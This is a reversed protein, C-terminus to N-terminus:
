LTCGASSEVAFARTLFGPPAIQRLSLIPMEDDRVEQRERWDRADRQQEGEGTAKWGLEASLVSYEASRTHGPGASLAALPSSLWSGPEAPLSDRGAMTFSSYEGGALAACRQSLLATAILPKQSLPIIKGGAPNIPSQITITGNQGFRSSASIVSNADQLLLNTTIFINGGPGFVANALIQSNLLIVSQPDINVSGGGGTGDRVSASIKSDTLQVTGNPNTTIKIAGGSSQDAETTVSSNTMTFQNGANIQINGTNGSGTSSSSVQAGNQLTVSNASLHINGGAGTGQTNTFIGSGSGGVLVSQAPSDLGQITVTGANGTPPAIVEGQFFPTERIDSSSTIQAGSEINLSDTKVLIDGANGIGTTKASLIAGNQLTLSHANVFIDGGAGTGVTQGGITATHTDTFIGSGTGDILVSQAPGGIGQVTVSGAQGSGGAQSRVVSGGTITLQPTDLEIHGAPGSQVGSGQASNTTILSNAELVIDATGTITITGGSGSAFTESSLGTGGGGTAITVHNGTLQIDGAKGQSTTTTLIFTGNGLSLNESGTIRITGGNSFTGPSAAVSFIQASDNLTVNTGTITVDGGNGADPNGSNNQTSTEITGFGVNNPDGVITITPATITVSGSNGTTEVASTFINGRTLSVSSTGNLTVAGGSGGGFSGTFLFSDELAVTPATISIAGGNGNSFFTDAIIGSRTVAVSETGTLTVPGANGATTGDGDYETFIVSDQLIVHSANIGVPGSNGNILSFSSTLITSNDTISATDSANITVPGGNGGNSDTLINSGSLAVSGATATLTVVGANGATAGDGQVEAQFSSGQLSVQAATVSISGANQSIGNAPFVSTNITSNTFSATDSATIGVSGSPGTGQATTTIFSDDMQLSQAAILVDSGPGAGLANSSISSGNRVVMAGQINVDIPPQATDGTNTAILSANDMVFEGSRIRIVAPNTPPPGLAGLPAGSLTPVLIEGPSTVTAMYILGNPASLNGATMSVGSPVTVGSDATFSNPGGIFALTKGDAVQLTGGQIAISASNSGLFGFAAVPATSLLADAAADPIANFRVGDALKLYDATSFAVMGGVNLTANPGFLFGAPNMLFLNASGFNTTQITGFISSVNGGTVRGLINSTFPYSGNVMTNQFNAIDGTGVSFNGFSHFLNTGARTGGTINYSNGAQTVITGLNGTSTTPTISTTVQAHSIREPLLALLLMSALLVGLFACCGNLRYVLLHETRM